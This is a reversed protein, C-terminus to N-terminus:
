SADFVNWFVWHWNSKPKNNCVNPNKLCCRAGERPLGEGTVRRPVHQDYGVHEDPLQLGPHFTALSGDSCCWQVEPAQKTALRCLAPLIHTVLITVTLNRPPFYVLDPTQQLGPTRQLSSSTDKGISTPDLTVRIHWVYITGTSHLPLTPTELPVSCQTFSVLYGGDSASCYYGLCKERFCLRSIVTFLFIM